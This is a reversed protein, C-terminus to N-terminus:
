SAMNLVHGMGLGQLMQAQVQTAVQNIAKPGETYLGVPTRLPREGAPTEILNLIADAVDQPEVPLNALSQAFGAGFNQAFQAVAGYGAFREQDAAFLMNAAFNTNYAGPEVIVSDIGLSSLEYRYTEALAESAWKTSAYIGVFPFLVRGITSSVYILLGSGQQRMHPLAARNVRLMGFVNIDYLTHVQEISFTEVMGFSGVGANNIVVDLQGTTNIISAIAADISAEDTVDLEIVHLALQESKAWRRLESAKQANKGEESAGRMSAFVTYGKRALTKATLYGFGSSSGTILITQTM